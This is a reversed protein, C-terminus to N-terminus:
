ESRLECNAKVAVRALEPVPQTGSRTATGLSPSSRAGVRMLLWELGTAEFLRRLDATPCVVVMRGRGGFLSRAEVLANLGAAAMFTVRRADVDLETVGQAALQAAVVWIEEANVIDYEGALTMRARGGVATVDIM